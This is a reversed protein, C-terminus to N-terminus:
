RRGAHWTWARAFLEDAYPQKREWYTSHTSCTAALRRKEAGYRDAEGRHARLYDRFVRHRHWHEGGLEVAHVHFARRGAEDKRFFLRGPLGNEGVYEYGLGRMAAIQESTLELGHLGVSIDIVPKAALGPVATSGMHEVASVGPGLAKRVREAEEEYRQPWSPDYDVVELPPESLAAAVASLTGGASERVVPEARPDVWTPTRNVVAVKGDAALTARPLDAVPYVELSSGVVLLLAAEEALRTAREMAGEPLLEDFFVVGPKLIAGCAPCPPAGHAEILPVVEALRYVAGCAPCSSTRISGHVEIVERSGAREHLQDINQTVVAQVLGRRELEALVLHAPNPEASTLMAFRPAYFRWVKGPDRRFAGLTAYERPDFEAWIGTPSRFDPVGSETSVGAGTLVVCPQNDRILGALQRIENM